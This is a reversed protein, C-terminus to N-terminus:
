RGEREGPPARRPAALLELVERPAGGLEVGEPPALPKPEDEVKEPGRVRVWGTRDPAFTLVAEGGAVSVASLADAIAAFGEVDGALSALGRAAGAPSAPLRVVIGGGALEVWPRGARVHAEWLEGTRADSDRAAKTWSELRLCEANIADNLLAVGESAHAVRFRQLLSTGGDADVWMRAEAVTVGPTWALLRPVLPALGEDPIPEGGGEGELEDLDFEFPWGLLIVHRAGAADARAADASERGTERLGHSVVLVELVDTEADHRFALDQRRFDYSVCSALVLTLALILHGCLKM